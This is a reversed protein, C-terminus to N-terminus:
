GQHKQRKTSLKGRKSKHKIFLGLSRGPVQLRLSLLRFGAVKSKRQKISYIM